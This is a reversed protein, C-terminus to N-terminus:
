RLFLTMDVNTATDLEIGTNFKQGGSFPITITTLAAVFISALTDTGTGDKLVITESTTAHSNALVMTNVDLPGTVVDNAAAFYAVGSKVTAAM